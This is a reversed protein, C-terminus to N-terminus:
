DDDFDIGLLCMPEYLDDKLRRQIDLKGKFHEVLAKCFRLIKAKDMGLYTIIIAPAGNYRCKRLLAALEDDLNDIGFQRIASDRPIYQTLINFLHVQETFYEPWEFEKGFPHLVDDDADFDVTDVDDDYLFGMMLERAGDPIEEDDIPALEEPEPPTDIDISLRDVDNPDIGDGDLTWGQGPTSPPDGLM